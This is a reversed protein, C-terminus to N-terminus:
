SYFLRNEPNFENLSLNQPLTEEFNSSYYNVILSVYTLQEKPSRHISM